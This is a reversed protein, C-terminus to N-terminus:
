ASFVQDSMLLNVIKDSFLVHPSRRWSLRTRIRSFSYMLRHKQKGHEVCQCDAPLSLQSQHDDGNPMLWDHLQSLQDSLQGGLAKM